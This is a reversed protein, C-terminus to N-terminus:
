GYKSRVGEALELLKEVKQQLVSRDSLIPRAQKLEKFRKLVQKELYHTTYMSYCSAIPTNLFELSLRSLKNAVIGDIVSRDFLSPTMRPRYESGMSTTFDRWKFSNITPYSTVPIWPTGLADAAIAGHMAESLLLGTGGIQDLIVQPEDRPDIVKIDVQALLGKWDHYFDLSGVHPMYAVGKRDVPQPHYYALLVAGDAVAKEAPLGLAKATLPGRVCIIDDLETLEPRGGYTDPAGQAYGTSFYIRRQWSFSRQKLGLISGIGILVTSDDDDFFDPLLKNFILPNLADGFNRGRHYVLKM